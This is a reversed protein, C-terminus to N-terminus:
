KKRRFSITKAINFIYINGANTFVVHGAYENFRKDEYIVGFGGGKPLFPNSFMGMVSLKVKRTTDCARASARALRCDNLLKNFQLREADLQSIRNEQITSQQRMLTDYSDREFKLQLNENKYKGLLGFCNECGNIYENPALVFGTDTPYTQIKQKDIAHKVTISEIQKELETVRGQQANSKEQQLDLQGRVFDLSDMYLHMASDASANLADVEKQSFTKENGCYKFTIFLVACLAIISITINVYKKITM